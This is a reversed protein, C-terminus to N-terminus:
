IEAVSLVYMEKKFEVNIHICIVLPEVTTVTAGVNYQWSPWGGVLPPIQQLKEIECKM